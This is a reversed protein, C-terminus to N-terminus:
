RQAKVKAEMLTQIERDANFYWFEKDPINLVVLSNDSKVPIYVRCIRGDDIDVYSSLIAEDFDNLIFFNSAFVPSLIISEAYKRSNESSKYFEEYAKKKSADQARILALIKLFADSHMKGTSNNLSRTMDYTKSKRNIDIATEGPEAVSHIDDNWYAHVLEEQEKNRIPHYFNAFREYDGTFVRGILDRKSGNLPEHKGQANLRRSLIVHLKEITYSEVTEKYYKDSSDQFLKTMQQVYDSLYKYQRPPIILNKWQTLNVHPTAYSVIDMPFEFGLPAPKTRADELSDIQEVSLNCIIKGSLYAHLPQKYEHTIIYEEGSLSNGIPLVSQFWVMWLHRELSDSPFLKSGVISQKVNELSEIDDALFDIPRIGRDPDSFVIKKLNFVGCVPRNEYTNEDPFWKSIHPVPDVGTMHGIITAASRKEVSKM